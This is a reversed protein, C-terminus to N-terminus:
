NRTCVCVVWDLLNPVFNNPNNKKAFLGACGMLFAILQDTFEFSHSLHVSDVLRFGFSSLHTSRLRHIACGHSKLLRTAVRKFRQVLVKLTMSKSFFHLWEKWVREGLSRLAKGKATGISHHCWPLFPGSTVLWCWCAFTMVWTRGSPWCAVGEIPCSQFCAQCWFLFPYSHFLFESSSVFIVVSRCSM